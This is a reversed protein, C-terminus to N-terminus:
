KINVEIMKELYAHRLQLAIPGAMGKGIPKKNIVTVPMVYNTASTIFAEQAREIDNVTFPKEIFPIGLNKAIDIITNRTIGSLIGENAARTQVCGKENVIWANAATGETVFGDNDLFWSEYAGNDIAEQKALVNPLLSISKIDCRTWRVEPTTIVSVGKQVANESPLKMHKATLILSAPVPPNPFPHFRPAVGRTMQIYILGTQLLNRKQIEHMLLRLVSFAVPSKIHLAQLSRELRELHGMEDLIIGKYLAVVEYVGDAFQYGRDEIHVKAHAHPQYYGNVYAIRSM